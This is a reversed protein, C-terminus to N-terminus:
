HEKVRKWGEYERMLACAECVKIPRHNEKTMTVTAPRTCDACQAMTGRRHWYVEYSVVGVIIAAFMGGFLLLAQRDTV